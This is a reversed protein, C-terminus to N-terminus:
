NLFAFNLLMSYKLVQERNAKPLSSHVGRYQGAWLALLKTKASIGVRCIYESLKYCWFSLAHVLTCFLPWKDCLHEMAVSSQPGVLPLWLIQERDHLKSKLTFRKDKVISTVVIEKKSQRLLEVLLLLLQQLIKINLLPFTLNYTVISINVYLLWRCVIKALLSNLDSLLFSQIELLKLWM